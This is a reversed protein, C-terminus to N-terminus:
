RRNRRNAFWRWGAMSLYILPLVVLMLGAMTLIQMRSLQIQTGAKIEPQWRFREDYGLLWDVMRLMMSQNAALYFFQNSIFDADGTVLLRKGDLEQTAALIQQRDSIWVPQAETEFVMAQTLQVPQDFAENMPHEPYRKLVVPNDALPQASQVDFMLDLRPQVDVLEPEQLWWINVGKELQQQLWNLTDEDLAQTPAPLVLAKVNDPIIADASLVARAVPYGRKQLEVLATSLGSNDVSSVMRSGFGELFVLWRDADTSLSHLLNTLDPYSLNTLHRKKGQGRVIIEGHMRVGNERLVAPNADPDIYEIEVSSAHDLVPQLFRSVTRGLASREAAYVEIQLQEQDAFVQLAREPLGATDVEAAPWFWAQIELLYLGSLLVIFALVKKM